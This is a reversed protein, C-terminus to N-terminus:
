LVEKKEVTYVFHHQKTEADYEVYFGDSIFFGSAKLAAKIQNKITIYNGTYYLNIDATQTETLDDDDAIDENAESVPTIVIYRKEAGSYVGTEIPLDVSGLATKIDSLINM